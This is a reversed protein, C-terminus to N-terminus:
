EPATSRAASVERISALINSVGVRAEFHKGLVTLPLLERGSGRLEDEYARLPQRLDNGIAAAREVFRQRGVDVGNSYILDFVMFVANGTGTGFDHSRQLLEGDCLTFGRSACRTAYEEGREFCTVKFKRDVLYGGRPVESCSFVLARSHSCGHARACVREHM